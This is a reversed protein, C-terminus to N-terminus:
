PKRDGLALWEFYRAPFPDGTAPNSSSLEDTTFITDSYFHVGYDGPYIINLKIGKEKATIVENILYGNSVQIEGAYFPDLGPERSIVYQDPRAKVKAMLADFIVQQSKTVRITKGIFDEPRTIGSEPLSFYVLPNRRYITAIALVPNGVARAILLLDAASIGFDAGGMVVSGILDATAGGPIFAVKINEEAYYGQTVAAYLGAFQAQHLWKLQVTVEDPPPATDKSQCAGVLLTIFALLFVLKKIM